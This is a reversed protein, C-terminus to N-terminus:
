PKKEWPLVAAATHVTGKLRTQVRVMLAPKGSKLIISFQARGRPLNIRVPKELSAGSQALGRGYELAALMNQEAQIRAQLRAVQEAEDLLIRQWLFVATSVALLLFLAVLLVTGRARM